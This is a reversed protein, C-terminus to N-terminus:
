RAYHLAQLINFTVTHPTKYLEGDVKTPIGVFVMDANALLRCTTIGGSLISSSM